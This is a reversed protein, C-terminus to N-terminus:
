DGDQLRRKLANRARHLRSMVTGPLLELVAGIEAYSLDLFDRLMIIERHEPELGRLARQLARDRQAQEVLQEPPGAPDALQDVVDDVPRRQRMLDICRNRVVRLVWPKLPGRRAQYSRPKALVALLSDQVADAADDPNGLLQAALAHAGSAFRLLEQQMANHKM